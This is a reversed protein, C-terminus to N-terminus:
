KRSASYSLGDSSERYLVKRALKAPMSSLSRLCMWLERLVPGERWQNDKWMERLKGGMALLLPCGRVQWPRHKIFPLFIAITLPEHMDRPWVPHSPPLHLVLDAAKYLSKRWFPQMLRPVIFVHHSEQRKHRAKQLEEIAVDAICPPPSWLLLGPKLNPSTIKEEGVFASPSSFTGDHDHGRSFWDSPSLSELDEGCWSKLWELLNSSRELASLHIPVFDLMAKGNMVGTSLNGRSLGDTGQEQMRTGAVHSLIIRTHCSMELKRLRLVQNFLEECKSSGNYYAAESVENDTFVYVEKGELQGTGGMHVLTDVLNRLERLNSSACAMDNGWVGFRYKVGHETEWSSGFGGGSADGFVFLAADIATGRVLRESPEESDVLETLAILDKSLRPVAQIQEPQDRSHSDAFKRKRTEFDVSDHLFLKSCM